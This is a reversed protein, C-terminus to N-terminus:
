GPHDPWLPTSPNTPQAAGHEPAPPGAAPTPPPTAAMLAATQERIAQVTALQAHVLAKTLYPKFVSREYENLAQKAAQVHYDTM